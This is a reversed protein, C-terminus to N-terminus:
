GYVGCRQVGFAENTVELLQAAADEGAKQKTAQPGPIVWLAWYGKM